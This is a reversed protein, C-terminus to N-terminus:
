QFLHLFLAAVAPCAVIAPVPLVDFAVFL